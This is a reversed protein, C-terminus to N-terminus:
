LRKLFLFQPQTFLSFILLNTGVCDCDFGIWSSQQDKQFVYNKALYSKGPSPKSTLILPIVQLFILFLNGRKFELGLFMVCSEETIETMILRHIHKVDLYKYLFFFLLLLCVNWSGPLSCSCVPGAFTIICPVSLMRVSLGSLAGEERGIHSGMTNKPM